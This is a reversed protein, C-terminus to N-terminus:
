GARINAHLMEGVVAIIMSVYRHQIEKRDRALAKDVDDKSAFEVFAEGSERGDIGKQITIGGHIINLGACM